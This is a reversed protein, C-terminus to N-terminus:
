CQEGGERMVNEAAQKCILTIPTVAYMKYNYASSCYIIFKYLTQITTAMLRKLHRWCDSHQFKCVTLQWLVRHPWYPQLSAFSRDQRSLNKLILIKSGNSFDLLLFLELAINNWIMSKIERKYLDTLCITLISLVHFHKFLVILFCKELFFTFYCYCKFSFNHRPGSFDQKTM